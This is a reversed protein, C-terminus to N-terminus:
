KELRSDNKKKENKLLQQMSSLGTGVCIESYSRSKNSKYEASMSLISVKLPM